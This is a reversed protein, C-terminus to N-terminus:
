GQTAPGCAALLEQVRAFTSPDVIAPHATQESWIWTDQPQLADPDPLRRRVTPTWAKDHDQEPQAAFPAQRVQVRDIEDHDKQQGVDDLARDDAIVVAQGTGRDTGDGEDRDVRRQISPQRPVLTGHTEQLSRRGRDDPVALHESLREPAQRQTGSFDLV